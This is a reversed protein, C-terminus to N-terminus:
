SRASTPRRIARGGLLATAEPLLALVKDAYGPAPTYIPGVFRIFAEASGAHDQWGAYPARGLFAWYGAIFAALSPFRCYADAGDHAAYTVGSAFPAMEARWKLGAYNRHERALASTGRGSELLWQALTVARLAPHPLPYGRYTTILRTLADDM